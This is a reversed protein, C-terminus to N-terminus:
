VKAEEILEFKGAPTFVLSEEDCAWSVYAETIPQPTEVRQKYLRWNLWLGAESLATNLRMYYRPFSDAGDVGPVGTHVNFEWHGRDCYVPRPGIWAFVPGSPGIFKLVFTGYEDVAWVPLDLKPM